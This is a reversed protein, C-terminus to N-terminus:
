EEEGRHGTRPPKAAPPPAPASSVTQPPPKKPEGETKPPFLKLDVKSTASPATRPQLAVAQPPKPPASSEPLAAPGDKLVRGFFELAETRFEGRPANEVVVRALRKFNRSEGYQRAAQWQEEMQMACSDNGGFFALVPLSERAPHESAPPDPRYFPSALAAGALQDPYSLILAWATWSGSDFSAVFFKQGGFDKKVEALVAPLNALDWPRAGKAVVADFIEQSYAYRIRDVADSHSFTHPAVVIFPRDGRAKAWEACLQGFACHQYSFALLVPYSKEEQWGKPLMFHYKIKSGAATRLRPASVAIKSEIERRAKARAENAGREELFDLIRLAEAYQKKGNLERWDQDTASEATSPSFRWAHSLLPEDYRPPTEQLALRFLRCYAGSLRPGRVERSQEFEKREAEGGEDKTTLAQGLKWVREDALGLEAIAELLKRAELDLKLQKAANALELLAAAAEKRAAITAAVLTNPGPPPAPPAPRPKQAGFAPVSLAAWGTLVLALKFNM